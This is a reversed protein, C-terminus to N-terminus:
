RNISNIVSVIIYYKKAWRRVMIARKSNVSFAITLIVEFNYLKPQNATKTNIKLECFEKTNQPNVENEEKLLEGSEFKKNM